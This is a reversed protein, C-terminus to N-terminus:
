LDYLAEEIKQEISKAKKEKNFYRKLIDFQYLGRVFIFNVYGKVM